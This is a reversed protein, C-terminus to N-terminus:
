VEIGLDKLEAKLGKILYKELYSTKRIKEGEQLKAEILLNILCNTYDSTNISSQQRMGEAVFKNKEPLQNLLKTIKDDKRIVNNETELKVNQDIVPTVVNESNSKKALEEGKSSLDINQRDEKSLRRNSNLKNLKIKKTM